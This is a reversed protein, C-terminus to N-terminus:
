RVLEGFDWLAKESNLPGMIQVSTPMGEGPIPIALAPAGSVNALATFDAQNDPVPEDFRFARQPTTPMLIVDCDEDLVRLASRGAEDMRARAETLREASVSRGYNLLRRLDSSMADTPGDLLEALAVAGESESVLLGARRTRGPDWNAIDADVVHYGAEEFERRTEEFAEIVEPECEVESVQKPIGIKKMKKPLIVEPKSMIETLYFASNIDPAIVGITDLTPSLFALGDRPVRGRTPKLGFLGCYSAPVRVSGMTDTGLAAQVFGAAVAAASGGSSGGATRSPDLPNLTRGYAPNDTTAGLAGEHMNLMAFPIAGFERLRAVVAADEQAIRHRWGELGATWPLGKVAINDKVGLLLGEFQRRPTMRRQAAAAARRAGERDMATIANLVPNQADISALVSELGDRHNYSEASM